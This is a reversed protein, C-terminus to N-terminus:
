VELFFVIVLKIYYRNGGKISYKWNTLPVNLNSLSKSFSLTFGVYNADSMICNQNAIVPLICVHLFYIRLDKYKMKFWWWKFKGVCLDNKKFQCLVYIWTWGVDGSPGIRNPKRAYSILDWVLPRIKKAKLLGMSPPLSNENNEFIPRERYFFFNNGM